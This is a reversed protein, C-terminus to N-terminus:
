KNKTADTYLELANVIQVAITKVGVRTSMIAADNRNTMFGCELYVAPCITRTLETFNATKIERPAAIGTEEHSWASEFSGAALTSLFSCRKATFVRAGNAGSWGRVPSANAHVALHLVDAKNTRSRRIYSNTFDARQGPTPSMPGHCLNAVDIVPHGFLLYKVKACVERNFSGEYIGIGEGIEPSRKGYRMPTGFMDDPHGPSLIIKM